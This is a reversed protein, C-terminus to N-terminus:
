VCSKFPLHRIGEYSIIIYAYRKNEQVSQNVKYWSALIAGNTVCDVPIFNARNDKGKRWFKTFGFKNLILLNVPLSQFMTWGIYPFEASSM